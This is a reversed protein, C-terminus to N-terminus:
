QLDAMVQRHDSGPVNPQDATNIQLGRVWIQDISLVPAVRPWTAICDGRQELANRWDKGIQNYWVSDLPTNFDGVVIAAGKEKGARKFSEEIPKRRDYFPWSHIDVIHIPLQRGNYKWLVRAWKHKPEISAQEIASIDGKCMVLFGREPIPFLQYGSPAPPVDGRIGAEVFIAIEPQPKRTM